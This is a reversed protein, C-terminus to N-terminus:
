IRAHGPKIKIHLTGENFPFRFKASFHEPGRLNQKLCTKSYKIESTESVYKLGQSNLRLFVLQIHLITHKIHMLTLLQYTPEFVSAYGGFQECQHMYFMGYQM